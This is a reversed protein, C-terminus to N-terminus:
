LKDKSQLLTTPVEPNLAIVGKEEEATIPAEQPKIAFQREPSKKYTTEINELDKINEQQELTKM